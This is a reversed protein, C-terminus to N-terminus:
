AFYACFVFLGAPLTPRNAPKRFLHPKQKNMRHPNAQLIAPMVAALPM